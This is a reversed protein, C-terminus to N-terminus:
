GFGCYSIKIYQDSLDNEKMKQKALENVVLEMNVEGKM